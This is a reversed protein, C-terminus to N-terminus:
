HSAQLVKPVSRVWLVRCTLDHGGVLEKM